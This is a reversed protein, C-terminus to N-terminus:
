DGIVTEFKAKEEGLVITILYSRGPEFDIGDGLLGQKSFHNEVLLGHTEGDSLVAAISADITQVYYTIDFDVGQGQHRPIVYFYGDSADATQCLNFLPQEQEIIGPNKDPSFKGNSVPAYNETLAPNLYQNPEDAQEGDASGERKDKRGDNFVIPTFSLEGKGEYDKWVPLGATASGKMLSGKLAFGSCTVSRVYIRTDDLFNVFGAPLGSENRINVKVRALASKAEASLVTEPSGLDIAEFVEQEVAYFQMYRQGNDYYLLFQGNRIDYHTISWMAQLFEEGEKPEGVESCLLGDPLIIAHGNMEYRASFENALSFGHMTGDDKFTVVFVKRWAEQSIGTPPEVKRFNEDGTVGYGLLKWKMGIFSSDNDADGGGDDQHDVLSGPETVPADSSDCGTVLATAAALLLMSALWTMRKMM